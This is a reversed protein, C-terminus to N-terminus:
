QRIKDALSALWPSTTPDRPRNLFDRSATSGHQARPEAEDEFPIEDYVQRGRRESKRPADAGIGMERWKAPPRMGQEAKSAWILAGRRAWRERRDEEEKGKPRWKGKLIRRIAEASVEFKEALVPTTFQAPYQAHLARIGDLADPSLKKRPQWGADGFKSGLVDKLVQWPERDANNIGPRTKALNAREQALRLTRKAKKVAREAAHYEELLEQREELEEEARKLADAAEAPTSVAEEEEPESKTKDSEETAESARALQRRMFRSLPKAEGRATKSAKSTKVAQSRPARGNKNTTQSKAIPADVQDNLPAVSELLEGQLEIEPEFEIASSQHLSPSQPFPTQLPVQSVERLQPVADNPPKDSDFPVYTDEPGTHSLGPQSLARQSSTQVARASSTRFYRASAGNSIVQRRPETIGAVERIFSRLVLRSCSPCAM